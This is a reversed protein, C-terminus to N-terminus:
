FPIWNKKYGLFIASRKRTRKKNPTNRIFNNLEAAKIKKLIKLM